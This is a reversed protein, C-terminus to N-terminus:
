FAITSRSFCSIKLCDAPLDARQGASSVPSQSFIEFWGAGGTGAVAYARLLWTLVTKKQCHSGVKVDSPERM